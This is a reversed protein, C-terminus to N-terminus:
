GPGYRISPEASAFNHSTLEPKACETACNAKWCPQRLFPCRLDALVNREVFARSYLALALNNLSSPGQLRYANCLVSREVLARRITSQCGNRWRNSSSSRLFGCDRFFFMECTERAFEHLEFRFLKELVIGVCAQEVVNRHNRADNIRSPEFPPLLLM